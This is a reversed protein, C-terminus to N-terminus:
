LYVITVNDICLAGPKSYTRAAGYVAVWYSDVNAQQAETLSVSIDHGANFAAATSVNDTANGLDTSSGYYVKGVEMRPMVLPKASHSEGGGHGDLNVLVEDILVQDGPNGNHGEFAVPFHWIIVPVIDSGSPTMQVYIKRDRDYIWGDVYNPPATLIM